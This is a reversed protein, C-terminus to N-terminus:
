EFVNLCQNIFLKREEDSECVSESLISVVRDFCCVHKESFPKPNGDFMNKRVSSLRNVLENRVETNIKM